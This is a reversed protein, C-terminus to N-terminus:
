KILYIQKRGRYLFQVSNELFAITEESFFTYSINDHTEKINLELAYVTNASMKIDGSYPISNQNNWLGITPGPGHGYINCPHSYLTVDIGEAKAKALSEALVENGSKGIQMTECVIDQFRNNIVFGDCMWKPVENEGQKAVYALRQTDTCLNLYKLGFDCHLLDGEEIVGDYIVGEHGERQIDVTPSFWYTLGLDSVKQMMFFELDACTTKGPTVQKTSFMEEMVSFAVELVEPYLSLESKTRIEMVKIPIMPEIVFRDTYTKPLAENFLTYLGYSLGDAFTFDKSINIAISKPDYEELFRKLAELQTEKSMDWYQPYFKNLESDPMSLSHRSVVGDRKVFVVMTIRRATLYSAPTLADFVLDEHYEKSAVLWADVDYELMVSPVIDDLREQLCIDKIKYQEQISKIKM